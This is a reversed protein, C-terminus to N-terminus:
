KSQSPDEGNIVCYRINDIAGSGALKIKMKRGAPLTKTPETPDTPEFSIVEYGGDPGMDVIHEAVLSRQNEGYLKIVTGGEDMDIMTIGEFRVLNDFSVKITGGKSNDDPNTFIGEDDKKNNEAIILINGFGNRYETDAPDIYLDRDTSQESDTSDFLIGHDFGKGNAQVNFEVGDYQKTIETGAKLPEMTPGIEDFTIVKSVCSGDGKVPENGPKGKGPNDKSPGKGKGPNDKSPGKGDTTDSGSANKALDNNEQSQDQDQILENDNSINEDPSAVKNAGNMEKTGCSSILGYALLVVAHFKM